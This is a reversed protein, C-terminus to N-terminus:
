QALVVTKPLVPGPMGDVTFSVTGANLTRPGKATQFNQSYPMTLWKLTGYGAFFQRTDYANKVLSCYGGVMHQSGDKANALNSLFLYNTPLGATPMTFPPQTVSLNFCEANPGSAALAACYAPTDSPLRNTGNTYLPLKSVATLERKLGAAQGCQVAAFSWQDAQWKAFVTTPTPMSLRHQIVRQADSIPDAHAPLQAGILATIFLFANRHFSFMYAKM